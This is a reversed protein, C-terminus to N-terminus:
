KKLHENLLDSARNMAKAPTESSVGLPPYAKDDLRDHLHFDFSAVEKIERRGNTVVSRTTFTIHWILAFRYLNKDQYKSDSNIQEQVAMEFKGSYNKKFSKELYNTMGKPNLGGERKQVLLIYKPDGFEPPISGENVRSTSPNSLTFGSIFFLSILSDTILMKSIM